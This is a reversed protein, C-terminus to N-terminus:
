IHIFTKVILYLEGKKANLLSHMEERDPDGQSGHNVVIFLSAVTSASLNNVASGM